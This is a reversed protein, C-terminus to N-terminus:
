SPIFEFNASVDESVGDNEFDYLMPGTIFLTNASLTFDWPVLTNPDNNFRVNIGNGDSLFQGTTIQPDPSANRVVLTFSHNQAVALVCFGGDAVVDNSQVPNANTTTFEAKTAEWNGVIGELILDGINTPPGESDDGSCGPILLMAMTTFM